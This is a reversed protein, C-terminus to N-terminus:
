AVPSCSKAASASFGSKCCPNIGAASRSNRNIATSKSAATRAMEGRRLFRLNVVSCFKIFHIPIQLRFCLCLLVPPTIHTKDFCCDGCDAATKRILPKLEEFRVLHSFAGNKGTGLRNARAFAGVRLATRIIHAVSAANDDLLVLEHHQHVASLNDVVRRFLAIIGDVVRTGGRKEVSLETLREAIRKITDLEAAHRGALLLHEEDVELLDLSITEACRRRHVVKIGEVVRLEKEARVTVVRNPDRIRQLEVRLDNRAVRRVQLERVNRLLIERLEQLSELNRDVLERRLTLADGENLRLNLISQICLDIGLEILFPTGATKLQDLDTDVTEGIVVLRLLEDVHPVLTGHEGVRRNSLAEHLPLNCLANAGRALIRVAASDAHHTDAHAHVGAHAEHPLRAIGVVLLHLHLLLRLM